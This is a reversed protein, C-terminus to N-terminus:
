VASTANAPPVGTNPDHPTTGKAGPRAAAEILPQAYALACAYPPTDHMCQLRDTGVRMGIKKAFAYAGAGLQLRMRGGRRGRGRQGGGACFRLVEKCQGACPVAYRKTIPPRSGNSCAAGCCAHACVGYVLTTVCMCAQEIVACRLHLRCGGAGVRQVPPWLEAPVCGESLERQSNLRPRWLSPAVAVLIAVPRCRASGAAPTCPMGRAAEGRFPRSRSGGGQVPKSEALVEAPAESVILRPFKNSLQVHAAHFEGIPASWAALIFARPLTCCPTSPHPPGHSAQMSCSDPPVVAGTM